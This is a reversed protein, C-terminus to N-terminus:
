REVASRVTAPSPSRTSPMASSSPPGLSTRPRRTPHASTRRALPGGQADAAMVDEPLEIHTSGPKEAEAVKFSKRVVEPIIAPDGVRANWKTIPRMIELVDIYQHSEKHMRELDGQGTLM